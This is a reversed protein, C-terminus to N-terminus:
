KAKTIEAAFKEPADPTVVVIRDTFRLVVSRQPDTAFVRYNGLKKNRFWGCFAFLGGNGFLRISGNMASPDSSASILSALDFHSSWGLRHIILERDTLTYGRVMFLAGGALIFLPLLLVLRVLLPTVSFGSVGILPIGICIVFCFATMLKLTKSWPAGFSNGPKM